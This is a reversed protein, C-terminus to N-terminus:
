IPMLIDLLEKRSYPPLLIQKSLPDTEEIVAYKNPVRSLVYALLDQRLRASSFAQKYPYPPYTSLINEIEDIVVTLTLKFLQKTM